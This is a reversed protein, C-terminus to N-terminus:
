KREREEYSYCAVDTVKITKFGSASHHKSPKLECYQVTRFSHEFEYRKRHVCTRCRKLKKAQYDADAKFLEDLTM